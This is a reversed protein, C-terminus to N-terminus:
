YNTQWCSRRCLPIVDFREVRQYIKRDSLEKWSRKKNMQYLPISFIFEAQFTNRFVTDYNYRLNVALYDKIQPQVRLEGGWISPNCRGSFFYPGAAVYLSFKDNDFLAGGIEANAAFLSSEYHHEKVYYYGPYTWEWSHKKHRQGVPIYGNARFDWRSNLLEFGVGVQNFNGWCGERWDWYLNFGIIQPANSNLSVYRGVFGVNSAFTRNTFCHGRLDLMPLISGASWEPAFEIGLSGYNTLNLWCENGSLYSFYLRKVWPFFSKSESGQIEFDQVAAMPFPAEAAIGTKIPDESPKEDPVTAILGEPSGENQSRSESDSPPGAKKVLCKRKRLKVIKITSSSAPYPELAPFSKALLSFGQLDIKKLCNGFFEVQNSVSESIWEHPFQIAESRYDRLSLWIKNETLYSFYARRILDSSFVLDKKIHPKGRDGNGVLSNEKSLAVLATTELPDEITRRRQVRRKIQLRNKGVISSKSKEHIQCGNQGRKVVRSRSSSGRSPELVPVAKTLVSFGQLDIKKLCDGFFNVQNSISESIWEHPFQIAESRYDRLTLWIKNESLYSFYSRRILNSSFVVEKKLHFKGKNGNRVLPSKKSLAVLVTTEPPDDIIRRRQVRRKIQLEANRSKCQKKIGHRQSNKLGLALIQDRPLLRERPAVAKNKSIPELDNEKGESNSKAFTQEQSFMHEASRSAEHLVKFKSIQEKKKQEEDLGERAMEEQPSSYKEIKGLNSFMETAVIKRSYDGSLDMMPLVFDFRQDVGKERFDKFGFFCESLKRVAPTFCSEKKMSNICFDDSRIKTKFFAYNADRYNIAFFMVGIFHLLYRTLRFAM